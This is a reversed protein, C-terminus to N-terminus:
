PVRPGRVHRVAVGAVVSEAKSVRALPHYTLTVHGDNQWDVAVTPGGGMGTPAIGEDDDLILANGGGISSWFSPQERFAV